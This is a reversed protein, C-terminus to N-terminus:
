PDYVLANSAQVQSDGGGHGEATNGGSKEAVDKVVANDLIRFLSPSEWVAHGSKFVVDEDFVKSVADHSTVFSTDLGM